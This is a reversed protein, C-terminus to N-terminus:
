MPQSIGQKPVNRSRSRRRRSVAVARSAMKRIGSYSSLNSAKGILILWIQLARTANTPNDNFGRM